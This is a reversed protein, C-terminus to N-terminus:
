SLFQQIKSQAEEKSVSNNIINAVRKDQLLASVEQSLQEKAKEIGSGRITRQKGKVINTEGCITGKTFFLSAYLSPTIYNYNGSADRLNGTVQEELVEMTRCNDKRTQKTKSNLTAVVKENKDKMQIYNYSSYGITRLTKFAKYFSTDEKIKQLIAKYDFNNRVIADSLTFKQGDVNFTTDQADLKAISSVLMVLMIGIYKFSTNKFRSYKSITFRM